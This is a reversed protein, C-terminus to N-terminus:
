SIGASRRIRRLLLYALPWILGSAVAPMFYLLSFDIGATMSILWYNLLKSMFTLLFIVVMQQSLSYMRIKQYQLLLLYAVLTFSMAHVGLPIGTMVDALLGVALAWFMGIRNPLALVWYMIVLLVWDPRLYGLVLPLFDPLSLISFLFAIFFTLLIIVYSFWSDATRAV